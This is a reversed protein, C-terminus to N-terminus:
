NGGGWFVPCFFYFMFIYFLFFSFSLHKWSNGFFIKKFKVQLFIFTFHWLVYHRVVLYAQICKNMFLCRCSGIWLKLHRHSLNEAGVQVQQHIHLVVQCYCERKIDGTSCKAPLCECVQFSGRAVAFSREEQYSGTQKNKKFFSM